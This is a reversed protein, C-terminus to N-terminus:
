KNKWTEHVILYYTFVLALGCGASGFLVAPLTGSGCLSAGIGCGLAGLGSVAFITYRLTENMDTNYTNPTSTLLKNM